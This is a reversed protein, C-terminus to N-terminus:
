LLTAQQETPESPADPGARTMSSDESFGHKQKLDRLRAALAERYAASANSDRQYHRRYREAVEPFERDLAPLFRHRAAPNLRLASGAVYRAGAEKAAQILRDLQERGDTLGPLIPAILLGAHIGGTTLRQLARIRAAPVPTRPEIRRLLAADLSALSINVSIEHREALQQLLGLDRTVLPSKTILGISLGRWRLLAELTRRTLRFRREAPQYPDTATGIMLTEGGLKVPDLTRALVEAVDSKVFIRREFDDAPDTEEPAPAPGEERRLAAREVVYRHTDRAYCYACGFECGVYPNLSWFSMRTTAPTNLVSRVPLSLFRTGRAREDLVAHAPRGGAQSSRSGLLDLQGTTPQRERVRNVRLAGLRL